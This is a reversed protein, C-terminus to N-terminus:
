LYFVSMLDSNTLCLDRFVFIYLYIFSSIFIARQYSLLLSNQAIIWNRITAILRRCLSKIPYVEMTKGCDGNVPTKEPTFSPWPRKHAYLYPYIGPSQVFFDNRITHASSKCWLTANVIFDRFKADCDM